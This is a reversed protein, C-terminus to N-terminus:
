LFPNPEAKYELGYRVDLFELMGAICRYVDRSSEIKSAAFAAVSTSSDGREVRSLTERFFAVDRGYLERCIRHYRRYGTESVAKPASIPNIAHDYIEAHSRHWERLAGYVIRAKPEAPLYQRHGLISFKGIGRKELLRAYPTGASAYMETFIGKTIPWDQAALFELNERLEELTTAHDFLIMGMQVYVGHKKLIHLAELNQSLTAGKNMRKLASPSGNEVGISTAFWGASALTAALGPTVRDARIQTRFSIRMRRKALEEAFDEAWRTDRPPEIFSDDVFKFCTAGYTDHLYEIENVVSAISRERWQPAQRMNRTFATVACFLCHAYCGRSTAVHVPNKLALTREITDRAPFALKDLNEEPMVNGNRTVGYADSRSLGCVELHSGDRRSLARALELLSSEAEGRLVYTVGADLFDKDYFTPGYGGAVVPVTRNWTRVRTIVERMADLSSRYCSAGILLPHPTASIERVVEEITLNRLWGDVIRVPFGAARLTAALYGLGLNEEATRHTHSPPTLLVITEAM